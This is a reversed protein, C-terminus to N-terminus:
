VVSKRDQIAKAAGQAKGQHQHQKGGHTFPNQYGVYWQGELAGADAHDGGPQHRQREHAEGAQDFDLPLLMSRISLLRPATLASTVIASTNPPTSPKAEMLNRTSPLATTSWISARSGCVWHP